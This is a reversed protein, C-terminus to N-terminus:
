PPLHSTLTMFKTGDCDIAFGKTEGEGRVVYKAM